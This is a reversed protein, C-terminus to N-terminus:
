SPMQDKVVNISELTKFFNSQFSDFLTLRHNWSKNFDFLSKADKIGYQSLYEKIPSRLIQRTDFGLNNYILATLFDQTTESVIFHHGYIKMWKLQEPNLEQTPKTRDVQGFENAKNWGIFGALTDPCKQLCFLVFHNYEHLYPTLYKPLGSYKESKSCLEISEKSIHLYPFVRARNPSIIGDPSISIEKDFIFGTYFYSNDTIPTAGGARAPKKCNILLKSSLDQVKEYRGQLIEKYVTELKPRYSEIEERVEKIDGFYEFM